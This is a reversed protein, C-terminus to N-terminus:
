IWSSCTVAPRCPSSRLSVLASIESSLRRIWLTRESIPFTLFCTRETFHTLQCPNHLLLPILSFVSCPCSM